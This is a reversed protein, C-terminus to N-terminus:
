QKTAKRPSIFLQERFQKPSKGFHINFQRSFYLQDPFGTEIAIQKIMLYKYELLQAARELRTRILFHIPPEGYFQKFMVMFRPVSLSAVRAIEPLTLPKNFNRQMYEKAELINEPIQVKGYKYEHALEYMWLTVIGELMYSNQKHQKKLEGYIMKLYKEFLNEANFFLLKNLPLQHTAATRAIAEGHAIMWSHDWTQMPNGYDHITKPEWIILGLDADQADPKDPNLWARNHFFMFLFPYGKGGHHVIGPAMTEHIGLSQICFNDTRSINRNYYFRSIAM